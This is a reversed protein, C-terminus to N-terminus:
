LPHLSMNRVQVTLAIMPIILRRKKKYIFGWLLGLIISSGMNQWDAIGFLIATLLISANEGFVDALFHLAFGRFYLEKLIGCVISLSLIMLIYFWVSTDYAYDHSYTTGWERLLAFPCAIVVSLIGIGIGLLIDSPLYKKDFVASKVSIGNEYFLFLALPLVLFLVLLFIMSYPVYDVAGSCFDFINGTSQFNKVATLFEYGAIFTTVLMLLLISLLANKHKM